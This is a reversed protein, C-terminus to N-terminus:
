LSPPLLPEEIKIVIHSLIIIDQILFISIGNETAFCLKVLFSM